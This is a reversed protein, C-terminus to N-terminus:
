DQICMSTPLEAILYAVFFATATNSFDNSELDLDRDLGMVRAYNLSVKDVFQIVYCFFMIPVIRRDVKRRARQVDLKSEMEDVVGMREMFQVLGADKPTNAADEHGAALSPQRSSNDGM